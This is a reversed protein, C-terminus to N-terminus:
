WFVIEAFGQSLFPRFCIGGIVKKQKMICMSRHNRDLVLRVIYEKPMKPLQASFINKCAILAIMHDPKGDNYVVPFSIIDNLEEIRAFDDRTAGIESSKAANPDKPDTSSSSSAAAPANNSSSSSSVPADTSTDMANSDQKIQAGSSTSAAAAPAVYTGDSM